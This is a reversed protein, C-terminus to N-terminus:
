RPEHRRRTDFAGSALIAQCHGCHTKSFIELMSVRAVLAAIEKAHQRFLADVDTPSLPSGDLLLLPAGEINNPDWPPVAPATYPAPRVLGANVGEELVGEIVVEPDSTIEASIKDGPQALELGEKPCRYNAPAGDWGIGGTVLVHDASVELVKFLGRRAM